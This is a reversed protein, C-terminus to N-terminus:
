RYPPDTGTSSFAHNEHSSPNESEDPRVLIMDLVEGCKPCLPPERKKTGKMLGWLIGMTQFAKTGKLAYRLGDFLFVDRYDHMQNLSSMSNLMLQVIANESSQFRRSAMVTSGTAKGIRKITNDAQGAFDEKVMVRYTIRSMPRMLNFSVSRAMIHKKTDKWNNARAVVKQFATLKKDIGIGIAVADTGETHVAGSFWVERYFEGEELKPVEIQRLKYTMDTPCASHFGTKCSSHTNGQDGDIKCVMRIVWGCSTLRELERESVTMKLEQMELLEAKTPTLKPDHMLFTSKTGSIASQRGLATYTSLTTNKEENLVVSDDYEGNGFGAEDVFSEQTYDSLAQRMKKSRNKARSEERVAAIDVIVPTTVAEDTDTIKPTASQKARELAETHLRTVYAPDTKQKLFHIFYEDEHKCSQVNLKGDRRYLGLVVNHLETENLQEFFYEKQWDLLFEQACHFCINLGKFHGTLRAITDNRQGTMYHTTFRKILDADSLKPGTYQTASEGVDLPENFQSDQRPNFQQSIILDEWEKPMDPIKVEWPAFGGEWEYLGGSYHVTGEVAVQGGKTRIDVGPLNAKNLVGTGNKLPQRTRFWRHEGGSGTTQHPGDPLNGYGGILDIMQEQSDLGGPGIDFDLVMLLPDTLIVGVGCNAPARNFLRDVDAKTQGGDQLKKWSYIPAKGSNKNGPVAPELPVVVLDANFLRRAQIHAPGKAPNQRPRLSTTM